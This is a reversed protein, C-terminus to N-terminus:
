PSRLRYYRQAASATSDNVTITAGTGPVTTFSHWAGENLAETHEITYTKGSETNFSLAVQGNSRAISLTLDTPQGVSVRFTRRATNKGGHLTDGDDQVTVTIEARGVRNSAPTFVLRGTGDPSSYEMTPQPILAPDSSLATLSLAQNENPAGSSIGTLAVTQDGANEALTYDPIPDLTPADNVPLVTLLFSNSVSAMQEDTMRTTITVSGFQNSAPAVTLFYTWGLGSGITMNGAPV